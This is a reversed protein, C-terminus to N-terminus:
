DNDDFIDNNFDNDYNNDYVMENNNKMLIYFYWERCHQHFSNYRNNCFYYVYDKNNAIKLFFKRWLIPIKCKLYTNIVNKYINGEILIILKNPKVLGHKGRSAIVTKNIGYHVHYHKITFNKTKNEIKDFFNINCRVGIKRCYNDGYKKDHELQTNKIIDTIEDLKPNIFVIESTVIM